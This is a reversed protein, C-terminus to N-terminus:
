AAALDIGVVDQGCLNLLISQFGTGCGVDLCRVGPSLSSRALDSVLFYHLRCFLWSYWLDTIADYEEAMGDFLSAIEPEALLQASHQSVTSTRNTRSCGCFRKSPM